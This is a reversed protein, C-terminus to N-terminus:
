ILKLAEQLGTELAEEYTNYIENIGGLFLIKIINNRSYLKYTFYEATYITTEVIINNEERLWKQLLSQTPAYIDCLLINDHVLVGKYDSTQHYENRYVYASLCKERFGKEEALKATEFTVLQENM